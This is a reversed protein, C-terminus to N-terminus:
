WRTFTFTKSPRTPDPLLLQFDVYQYAWIKEKLVIPVNTIFPTDKTETSAGAEIGASATRAGTTMTKGRGQNATGLKEQRWLFQDHELKRLLKKALPPMTEEDGTLGSQM